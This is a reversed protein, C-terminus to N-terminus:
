PSTSRLSRHVADHRGGEEGADEVDGVEAVLQEPLVLLVLHALHGVDVALHKGPTDGHGDEEDAEHGERALDVLLIPVQGDEQGLLDVQVQLHLLLRVLLLLQQQGVVHELEGAVQELLELGRELDM